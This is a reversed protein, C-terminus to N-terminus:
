AMGHEQLWGFCQWMLRELMRKFKGFSQQLRKACQRFSSGSLYYESLVRQEIQMLNRYFGGVCDMWPDDGIPPPLGFAGRGMERAFPTQKPYGLRSQYQQRMFRRLSLDAYLLEANVTM